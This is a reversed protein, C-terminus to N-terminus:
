AEQYTKYKAYVARSYATSYIGKTFAAKAGGEGLNYAMAIAEISSYNRSLNGLMIAGAKINQTPDLLNDIGYSSKLWSKHCANIQMLGYDNTPSIENAHFKSEQEMIALMLEPKVGYAACESFVCDQLEHSLACDYYKVQEEQETVQEEQAPEAAKEITKECREDANKAIEYVSCAYVTCVSFYTLAVACVAALVKNKSKSM